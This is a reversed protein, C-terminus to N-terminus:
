AIVALNDQVKVVGPVQAALELVASRQEQSHVVGKLYAAGLFVEFRVNASATRSDMGIKLALAQALAQDSLLHNELQWGNAAAKALREAMESLLNTRVRGMLSLRGEEAEIRIDSTTTRLAQQDAMLDYARWAVEEAKEGKASVEIM